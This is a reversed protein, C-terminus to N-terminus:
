KENDRWGPLDTSKNVGSGRSPPVPFGSIAQGALIRKVIKSVESCLVTFGGDMTCRSFHPHHCWFDLPDLESGKADTARPREGPMDIQLVWDYRALELELKSNVDRFFNESTSPWHALCDLTGHDCVVLKDDSLESSINELERQSFYLARQRAKRGVLSRPRPFGGVRFIDLADPCLVMDNKFEHKLIHILTTKGIEPPGTIVLKM